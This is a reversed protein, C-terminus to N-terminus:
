RRGISPDLISSPLFFICVPPDLMTEFLERAKDLHGEAAYTRILVNQIYSSSPTGSAQHKAIYQDLLDFRKHLGIV